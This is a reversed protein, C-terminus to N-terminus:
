SPISVPILKVQFFIARFFSQHSIDRQIISSLNNTLNREFPTIIYMKYFFHILIESNQRHTNQARANEQQHFPLLKFSPRPNNSKTNSFADADGYLWYRSLIILDLLWIISRVVGGEPLLDLLFTMRSVGDGDHEDEDCNGKVGYEWVEVRASLVGEVRTPVGEGVDEEVRTPVRGEEEGRWEGVDVLSNNRRIANAGSSNEKRVKTSCKKHFQAKPFFPRFWVTSNCVEKCERELNGFAGSINKWRRWKFLLCKTKWMLYRRVIFWLLTALGIM